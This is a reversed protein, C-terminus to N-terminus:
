IGLLVNNSIDRVFVADEPVNSNDAKYKYMFKNVWLDGHNYVNIEKPIPRGTEVLEKTISDCYSHLKESIEEYGKWTAVMDSFTRVHLSMFDTFRESSRVYTEDLM